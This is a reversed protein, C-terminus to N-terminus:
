SAQKKRQLEFNLTAPRRSDYKTLKKKVADGLGDRKATLEYDIDMNLERFVYAGDQKTIFDVMKGTKLDKLQVIAGDVPAGSEDKVVGSLDRIRSKDEKPNRKGDFVAPKETPLPPPTSQAFGIASGLILLGTFAGPVLRFPLTSM